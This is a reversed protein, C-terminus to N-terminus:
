RRFSKNRQKLNPSVNQKTIRLNEKIQNSQSTNLTINSFLLRFSSNIFNGDIEM